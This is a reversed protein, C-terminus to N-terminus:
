KTVFLVCDFSKWSAQFDELFIFYKKVNKCHM